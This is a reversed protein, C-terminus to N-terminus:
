NRLLPRGTTHYLLSAATHPNMNSPRAAFYQKVFNTMGAEAALLLANDGIVDGTSLIEPKSGGEVAVTVNMTARELLNHFLDRFHALISTAPYGNKLTDTYKAFLLGDRLFMLFLDAHAQGNLAIRASLFLMS